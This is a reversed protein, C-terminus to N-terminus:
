ADLLATVFFSDDEDRVKRVMAEWGGDEGSSFCMVFLMLADSGAGMTGYMRREGSEACIVGACRWRRM